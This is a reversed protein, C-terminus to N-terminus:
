QFVRRTIVAEELKQQDVTISEPHGRAEPEPPTVARVPHHTSPAPSFIELHDHARASRHSRFHQALPCRRWKRVLPPM